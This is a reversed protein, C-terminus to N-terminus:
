GGAVVGRAERIVEIIEVKRGGQGLEIEEEEALGQLQTITMQELGDEVSVPPLDPLREFKQSGPANHCLLDTDTEVIDGAEMGNGYLKGGQSHLGRLVRYRTM